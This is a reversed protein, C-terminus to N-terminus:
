EQDGQGPAARHRRRNSRNRPGYTCAEAPATACCTRGHNRPSATDTPWPSSSRAATSASGTMVLLCLRAEALRINVHLGDAAGRESRVVLRRGNGDREGAFQEIYAGVEAQPTAALM